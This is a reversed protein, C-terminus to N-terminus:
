GFRGFGTPQHTHTCTQGALFSSTSNKSPKSVSGFQHDPGFGSRQRTVGVLRYCWDFLVKRKNLNRLCVLRSMFPAVQRYITGSKCCGVDPGIAFNAFVVMNMAGLPFKDGSETPLYLLNVLRDVWCSWWAFSSLLPKFATLTQASPANRLKRDFFFFSASFHQAICKELLSSCSVHISLEM